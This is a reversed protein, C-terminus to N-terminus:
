RLLLILVAIPVASSLGVIGIHLANRAAGPAMQDAINSLGVPVAAILALVAFSVIGLKAFAALCVAFVLFCFFRGNTATNKALALKYEDTM